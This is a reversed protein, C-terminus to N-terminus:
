QTDAVLLDRARLDALFADVDAQAVSEDIDYAAVLAQRLGAESSGEVLQKWLVAGTENLHLYRWTREDLLM